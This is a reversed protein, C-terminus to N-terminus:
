LKRLVEVARSRLREREVRLWEEFAQEELSFGELLDGRYISIAENFADTTDESALREFRVVDVIVRSPELGILDAEARIAEVKGTALAHRLDLLCQRLGHRAVDENQDAWLLTTLRARAVMRRPDVALVALLARTKKRELVLTDEARPAAVRFGGLLNVFLSGPNSRVRSM